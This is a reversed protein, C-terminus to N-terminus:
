WISKMAEQYTELTNTIETIMIMLRIYEDFKKSPYISERNRLNMRESIFDKYEENEFEFFEENDEMTTEENVNEKSLSLKEELLNRKGLQVKNENEHISISMKPFLLDENFIVNKSIIVRRGKSWIRQGGFDHGFVLGEM